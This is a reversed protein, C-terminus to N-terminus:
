KRNIISHILANIVNHSSKDPCNYETNQVFLVFVLMVAIIVMIVYNLRMAKAYIVKGQPTLFRNPPIRGKFLGSLDTMAIIQDRDIHKCLLKQLKLITIPFYIALAVILFLCLNTLQHMQIRWDCNNITDM